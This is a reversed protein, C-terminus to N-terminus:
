VDVPDNDDCDTMLCDKTYYLGPITYYEVMESERGMKIIINSFFNKKCSEHRPVLRSLDIDVCWKYYTM